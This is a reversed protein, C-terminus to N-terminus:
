ALDPRAAFAYILGSCYVVCDLVSLCLARGCLGAYVAAPRGTVTGSNAMTRYPDLDFASRLPIAHEAVPNLGIIGACDSSPNRQLGESQSRHHSNPTGSCIQATRGSALV